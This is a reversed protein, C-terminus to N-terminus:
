QKYIIQAVQVILTKAIANTQSLKASSIWLNWGWVKCLGTWCVFKAEEDLRSDLSWFRSDTTEKLLSTRVFSTSWNQLNIILGVVFVKKHFIKKLTDMVIMLVQDRPTYCSSCCGRTELWRYGPWCVKQHIHLVELVVMMMMHVVKLSMSVEMLMKHTESLLFVLFYHLFTGLHHLLLYMRLLFLHSPSSRPHLIQRMKHTLWIKWCLSRWSITQRSM